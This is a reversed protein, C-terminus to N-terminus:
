HAPTTAEAAPLDEDHTTAALVLWIAALILAAGGLGVPGLREARFWWGALAGFVTELSLLLVARAPGVV